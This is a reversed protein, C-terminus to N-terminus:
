FYPKSLNLMCKGLNLRFIAMAMAMAMAQGVAMTVAMPQELSSGVIILGGTPHDM